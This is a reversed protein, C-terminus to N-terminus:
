PHGANFVGQMYANMNPFYSLANQLEALTGALSKRQTMHAWLEASTAFYKANFKQSNTWTNPYSNCTNATMVTTCPQQNFSPIDLAIANLWAQNTQSPNNWLRDLHHGLEHIIVGGYIGTIDVDQTGDNYKSFAAAVKLSQVSNGLVGVVPSNQAFFANFAAANKMTYVKVGDQKLIDQFNQPLNRVQSAFGLEVATPNYPHVCDWIKQPYKTLGYNTPYEVCLIGVNAVAQNVVPGLAYNKAYGRTNPLYTTTATQLATLTAQGTAGQFQYAYIDAKTNGYITGLIQFPTSGPYQNAIAAGWVTASSFSNMYDIDYSDYATKFVSNTSASQSPNGTLSDYHRGLQQLISSGYVSTLGTNVGNITANKFAAAKNPAKWGLYGPGAPVAVGTFATFDAKNNFAYLEVANLTAKVAAPLNRASSGIGQELATIAGPPNVCDWVTLPWSGYGTSYQSCTIGGQTVSQIPTVAFAPTAVLMSGLGIFALGAAALFGKITRKM